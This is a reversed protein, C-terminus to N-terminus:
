GPPAERAPLSDLRRRLWRREAETSVWALARYSGRAEDDRALRRQLDARVAHYPAYDALLPGDLSDVEAMAPGPGAVEALAVARNLRVIPLPILKTCDL